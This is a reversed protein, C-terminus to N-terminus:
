GTDQRDYLEDAEDAEDMESEAAEAACLIDQFSPIRLGEGPQDSGPALLQLCGHILDGFFDYIHQCAECIELHRQVRCMDNASIENSHMLPLLRAVDECTSEPQFAFGGSVPNMM